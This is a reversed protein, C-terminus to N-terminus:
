ADNKPLDTQFPMVWFKKHVYIMKSNFKWGLIPTTKKHYIVGSCVNIEDFAITV